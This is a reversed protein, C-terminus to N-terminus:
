WRLPQQWTEKLAALIRGIHHDYGSICAYYEALQKRTDEPTRPFPALLEDRVRADGNNWPHEPMFAPPLAIKAADYLKHFQPEAERPDHPM